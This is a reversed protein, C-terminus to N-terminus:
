QIKLITDDSVVLDEILELRVQQDHEIACRLRLACKQNCIPDENDFKGFCITRGNLFAPNIFEKKM